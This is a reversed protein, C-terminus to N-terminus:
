FTFCQYYQKKRRLTDAFNTMVDIIENIQQVVLSLVLNNLCNPIMNFM